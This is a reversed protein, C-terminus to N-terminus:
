IEWHLGAVVRRIRRLDRATRDDTGRRLAADVIDTLEQVIRERELMDRMLGLKEEYEELMKEASRLSDYVAAKSIGFEDAIESLSMDEENHLGLVTRKKETLLAGYIDFLISQRAPKAIEIKDMDM